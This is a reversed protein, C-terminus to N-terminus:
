GIMDWADSGPFGPTTCFVSGRLVLSLAIAGCLFLATERWTLAKRGAAALAACGAAVMVFFGMPRANVAGHATLAACALLVYCTAYLALWMRHSMVTQPSDRTPVTFPRHTVVPGRAHAGPWATAHLREPADTHALHHHTRPRYGCRACPPGAPIAGPPSPAARKERPLRSREGRETIRTARPLTAASQAANCRPHHSTHAAMVRRLAASQRSVGAARVRRAFAAQHRVPAGRFTAM